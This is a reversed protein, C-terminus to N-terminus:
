VVRVSVSVDHKGHRFYCLQTKQRDAEKEIVFIKRGSGSGELAVEVVYTEAPTLGPTTGSGSVVPVFM